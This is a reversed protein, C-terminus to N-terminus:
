PKLLVKVCKDKHNEFFDYAELAKDLSFVHTALLALNVRGSEVLGMLRAVDSPDGLGMSLKVGYFGMEQIPFEVARPFLGVVSVMGGRRVSRLAQMFTEPDGKAEIAVDVGEGGTAKRLSALVDKENGNITLAGYQRAIALRNELKGVGFVRKAGFQFASIIAALGIPGCGFVAITDGTKIRAERASWYGAQFVDGVLVAQDDSVGDPVHFLCNDAFPVRIYNAQAGGMGKGFIEGGGFVGGRVCHQPESRKCPNCVGCWTIPAAVVRDGVKFNLVDPGVGDILGTFEHGMITGPKFGPIVGNKAHLDSGCIAAMTVEVVADKKGILRPKPIEKLAFRRGAQLVVAKM